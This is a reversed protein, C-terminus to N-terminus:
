EKERNKLALQITQGDLYEISTGLSIGVALTSVKIKSNSFYSKIYDGIVENKTTKDFMLILEKAEQKKVFANLKDFDINSVDLRKNKEGTGLVYVSEIGDPSFGGVEIADIHSTFISITDTKHNLICNQCPSTFDLKNCISCSAVTNALKVNEAIEDNDLKESIMLDIVFKRAARRSIKGSAILQEVFDNIFNNVKM